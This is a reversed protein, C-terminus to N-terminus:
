LGTGLIRSRSKEGGPTPMDTRGRELSGGDVGPWVGVLRQWDRRGGARM